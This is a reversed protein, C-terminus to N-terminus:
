DHPTEAARERWRDVVDHRLSRRGIRYRHGEVIKAARDRLEEAAEASWQGSALAYRYLGSPSWAIGAERLRELVEVSMAHDRQNALGTSMNILRALSDIAAKAVPDIGADVEEARSGLLDGAGHAAVWDQIREMDWPVVCIATLGRCDDFKALDKRQPWFVLVSGHFTYFSFTRLTATTVRQLAPPIKLWSMQQQTPAVICVPGAQRRESLWTWATTLADDDPPRSPGM